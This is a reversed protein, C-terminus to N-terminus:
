INLERQVVALFKNIRQSHYFTRLTSLEEKSPIPLDDPEIRLSDFLPTLTLWNKKYCYVYDSIAKWPKAMFFVYPLEEIREVNTLFDKTPLHAYYFNGLPTHFMCKRKITVSTITYVAEPILGHYALASELSIYSPGYIFQALMYPHPKQHSLYNGLYYVGRCLHILYGQAIARKVQSYRKNASGPLLAHLETSTVIESKLGRLCQEILSSM